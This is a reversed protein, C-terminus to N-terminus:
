TQSTKSVKFAIPRELLNSIKLNCKVVAKGILESNFSVRGNTCTLLDAAHQHVIFKDDTHNDEDSVSNNIERKFPNQVELLNKQNKTMMRFRSEEEATIVSGAIRNTSTSRNSVTAVMRSRPFPL